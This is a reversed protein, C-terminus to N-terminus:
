LKGENFSFVGKDSAIVIGCGAAIGCGGGIAPGNVRAITPLPCTFMLHFMEALQLSDKLNEEYSYKLVDGMWKLDAGACFANGEGTVVVVRLNPTVAQQAGINVHEGRGGAEPLMGGMSQQNIVSFAKAIESIMVNNFANRIEPRSLIVWAVQGRQEIKITTFNMHKGWRTMALLDAGSRRLVRVAYEMLDGRRSMPHRSERHCAKNRTRPTRERAGRFRRQRQRLNPVAHKGRSKHPATGRRFRATPPIARCRQHRGATRM